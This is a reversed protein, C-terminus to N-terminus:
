LLNFVSGQVFPTVIGIVKNGPLHVAKNSPNLIRMIAKGKRVTVVCKAGQVNLKQLWAVPEVLVEENTCRSININIDAESLPPITFPNSIRAFGANTSLMCVQADLISMTKNGVDIKVKFAEMFDLGLILSHHLNEIVHFSYSVTVGSFCIDLDIKGSVSHQEGGVGVVTKIHSPSINAETQLVKTIFAKNACSISAGTDCLANTKRGNISVQVTNKQM